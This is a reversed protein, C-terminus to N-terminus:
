RAPGLATEPLSSEFGFASLARGVGPVVAELRKVQLEPLEHHAEDLTGILRPMLVALPQAQTLVGAARALEFQFWAYRALGVGVYFHDFDALSRTGPPDFGAPAGDLLRMMDPMEARIFAAMMVNALLENMASDILDWRIGHAHVLAHGIEHVALAENLRMDDFGWVEFGPFAALTDPMVVLRERNWVHPAPYPVSAIKAWDDRNLVVLRFDSRWGLTRDFFRSAEAIAAAFPQGRATASPSALM